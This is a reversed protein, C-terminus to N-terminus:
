HVYLMLMARSDAVSEITLNSNSITLNHHCGTSLGSIEIFIVCRLRYYIAAICLVHHCDFVQPTASGRASKMKMKGPMASTSQFLRSKIKDQDYALKQRPVKQGKGAPSKGM